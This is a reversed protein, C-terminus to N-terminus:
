SILIEFAKGQYRTRAGILSVTADKENGLRTRHHRQRRIRRQQERNAATQATLVEM